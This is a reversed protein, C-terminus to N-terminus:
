DSDKCNFYTGDKQMVFFSGAKESYAGVGDISTSLQKVGKANFECWYIGPSIISLISYERGYVDSRSLVKCMYNGPDKSGHCIVWRGMYVKALQNSDIKPTDKAGGILLASFDKIKDFDFDGIVLAGSVGDRVGSRVSEDFDEPQMIRFGPFQKEIVAEYQDRRFTGKLRGSPELEFPEEAKSLTSASIIPTQGYNDAIANAALCLAGTLVAVIRTKWQM